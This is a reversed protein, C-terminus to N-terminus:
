NLRFRTSTHMAKYNLCKSLNSTTTSVSSKIRSNQTFASWVCIISRSHGPQQLTSCGSKNKWDQVQISLVSHVNDVCIHRASDHPAHDGTGSHVQNPRNRRQRPNAGSSSNPKWSTVKAHRCIIKTSMNCLRYKNSNARTNACHSPSSSNRISNESPRDSIAFFRWQPM